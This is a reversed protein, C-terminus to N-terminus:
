KITEEKIIGPQVPMAEEKIIGPQNVAPPASEAKVPAPKVAEGTPPELKQQPEDKAVEKDKSWPFKKEPKLLAAM